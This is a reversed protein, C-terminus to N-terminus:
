ISNPKKALLMLNKGIVYKLGLSDLIRSFPFILKDYISLSISSGLGVLNKFGLVRVALSALVGLSDNFYCMEVEFGASRVKQVLERKQYRRFHGVKRDLDSFLFTFAPVYIALGAGPQMNEHLEKLAEQDDEIHELVNSTYIFSALGPLERMNAFVYYGREKLRKRLAPDLEICYPKIGYKETLIQPLAGTGAGFDVVLDNSFSGSRLFAVIKEVIFSTYNVVSNEAQFLEEAGSYTLNFETQRKVIKRVSSIQFLNM